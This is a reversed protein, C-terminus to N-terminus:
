IEYKIEVDKKGKSKRIATSAVRRQLNQVCVAHLLTSVINELMRSIFNQRFLTSWQTQRGRLANTIGQYIFVIQLM